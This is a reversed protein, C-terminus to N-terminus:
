KNYYPKSELYIFIFDLKSIEVYTNVEREDLKVIGAAGGTLVNTALSTHQGRVVRCIKFRDAWGIILCDPESWLLSCRYLENRLNADHDKAIYTIIKKLYTSYIKV